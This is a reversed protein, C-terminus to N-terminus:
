SSRFTAKPAITLQIEKAKILLKKIEPNTYKYGNLFGVKAGRELLLSAIKMDDAKTAYHLPTKRFRDQSNIDAGKELLQVVTDINGEEIAKFFETKDPSSKGSPISRQQSLKEVNSPSSPASRATLLSKYGSEGSRAVSDKLINTTPALQETNDTEELRPEKSLTRHAKHIVWEQPKLGEITKGNLTAWEIPDMIGVDKLWTRPLDDIKSIVDLRESFEKLVLAQKAITAPYDIPKISKVGITKLEFSSKQVLNEIENNSIQLMEKISESFRAPDLPINEYNFGKFSSHMRTILDDVDSAFYVGSRGHDIKLVEFREVLNPTKTPNTEINEIVRRAGLNSPHYDVEGLFLSAAIIKEFGALQQLVPASAILTTDIGSGSLEALTIFDELFKSRLYVNDISRDESLKVIKTKPATTLEANGAVLAIDPARDYLLRKYLKSFIYERVFDKTDASIVKSANKVLYRHRTRPDIMIRGSSQGSPKQGDEVFDRIPRVANNELHSTIVAKKLAINEKSQDNDQTMPDDKILKIWSSLM